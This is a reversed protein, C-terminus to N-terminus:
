LGRAEKEMVLGLLYRALRRAEDARMEPKEGTLYGDLAQQLLPACSAPLREIGWRGGQAKSLLKGERRWALVRCLNLLVYVPDRIVDEEANAVDGRVSDWFAEPPVPGFMEGIPRGFACIGVAHLVAVHAALDPDTGHMDACFARLDALCRQRYTQSYHLVYPTPYVFPRCVDALLVSMEMGKPPLQAELALLARLLACKEGLAPERATVVLFDVDSSRPQFCGFAISGHVYLGLLNRGLTDRCATVIRDMLAQVDM